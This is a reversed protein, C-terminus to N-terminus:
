CLAHRTLVTKPHHQVCSEDYIEHMGAQASARLLIHQVDHARQVGGGEKQTFVRVEQFDRCVGAGAQPRLSM